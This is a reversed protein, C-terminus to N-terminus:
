SFNIRSKLFLKEISELSEETIRSYFIEINDKIIEEPLDSLKLPMMRQIIEEPFRMKIIKAPVGGVISYPPINQSVVAGAAIIAGKGIHVGSLVTVGNGIWVDDDVFIDGKSLYAEATINKFILAQFPFTSFRDVHHNGDIFFKVDTSISVFDGISLKYPSSPNYVIVNLEGYSHIGVKVLDIPFESVPVTSNHSNKQKWQRLFAKAKQRSKIEKIAETIWM